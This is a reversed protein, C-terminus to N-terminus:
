TWLQYWGAMLLHCTWWGKGYIKKGMMVLAIMESLFLCCAWWLTRSLWSETLGSKPNNVSRALVPPLSSFAPFGGAGDRMGQEMCYGWSLTQSMLKNNIWTVATTIAPIPIVILATSVTYATSTGSSSSRGHLLPCLHDLSQMTLLLVSPEWKAFRSPLWGMKRLGCRIVHADVENRRARPCVSRKFEQPNNLIRSPLGSCRQHACLVQVLPGWEHLFVFLM